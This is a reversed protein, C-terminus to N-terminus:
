DVLARGYTGGGGPQISLRGERAAVIREAIRDGVVEALQDRTASHLVGMESGFAHILRAITAPGVGPVFQLPVQYKYPPRHAPSSPKSFDAIEDIRDSVGRVVRNSGCEPCGEYGGASAFRAGCVECSSLHYKGLRPDLGYNAVVRRGDIRALALSVEAFSPSEMRMVNYERGMRGLSHADSNSIFTYDALEAVRDAMHTDASLGLEVSAVLSRAEAGFVDAIRRACTGYLSKHPTFAHAVVFVGGVDSALRAVQEPLLRARQTSLDINSTHRALQRSFERAQPITAFYALYHASGAIPCAAEVEVGLIVTTRDMYRMGGGPAEEMAGSQVLRDIDDLVRGSACDVIGVVDIGKRERAERAINGFTLDRAGSIKVPRGLSDRGIHVHLDVFYDKLPLGDKRSDM